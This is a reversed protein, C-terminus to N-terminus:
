RKRKRKKKIKWRRDAPTPDANGAADIARVAFVHKTRKLGRLKEPSNCPEWDNGDLRCQFTVGPESGGFEFTVKRKDTKEQPGKRIGTNPPFSDQYEERLTAGAANGCALLVVLLLSGVVGRGLSGRM